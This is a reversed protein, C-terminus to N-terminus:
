SRPTSHGRGIIRVRGGTPVAFDGMTVGTVEGAPANVASTVTMPIGTHVMDMTTCRHTVLLSVVGGRRHHGATGFDTWGTLDTAEWTGQCAVTGDATYHTFTGGGHVTTTTPDFWGGGTVRIRDGPAAMMGAAPAAATNPTVLAFTFGTGAKRVPGAPDAAATGVPVLLALASLAAVTM